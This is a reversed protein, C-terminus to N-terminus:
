TQWFERGSVSNTIRALITKLLPANVLPLFVARACHMKGRPWCFEVRNVPLWNTFLLKVSGLRLFVVVLHCVHIGRELRWVILPSAYEFALLCFVFRCAHTYRTRLSLCAISLSPFEVLRFVFSSTCTYRTRLTLPAISVCILVCAPSFCLSVHM